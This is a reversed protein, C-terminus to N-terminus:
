RMSIDEPQQLPMFQLKMDKDKNGYYTRIRQEYKQLEAQIAKMQPLNMTMAYEYAAGLALFPHFPTEFGPIATGAALTSAGVYLKGTGAPTDSDTLSLPCVTRYFEILAKGGAAVDEANPQPYFFLGNFKYDFRPSQKVYRSNMQADMVADGTLPGMGRQESANDFAQARYYNVGDYAIDIRKLALLNLSQPVQMDRNTSLDVSYIPYKTNNMDDFDVDDQSELIITGVEQYWKNLDILLNADPYQTADTNVLARAKIAIDSINM